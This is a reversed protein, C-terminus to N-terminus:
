VQPGFIQGRKGFSFRGLLRAFLHHLHHPAGESRFKEVTEILDDQEVPETAAFHLPNDVDLKTM